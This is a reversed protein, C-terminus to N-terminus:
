YTAYNRVFFAQIHLKGNWLGLFDAIFVVIIIKCANKLDLFFLKLTSIFQLTKQEPSM